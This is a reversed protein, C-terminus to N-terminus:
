GIRKRSLRIIEKKVLTKAWHYALFPTGSNIRNKDLVSEFFREVKVLEDITEKM